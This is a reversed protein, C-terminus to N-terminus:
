EQLLTAPEDDAPPDVLKGAVIIVNDIVDRVAFLFPHDAVLARDATLTSSRELNTATLFNESSSGEDVRFSVQQKLEDIHLRQEISIGSFDASKTFINTLGAKSLSKEAGSVADFNFKPFSIDVTEEKLQAVISSFTAPNIESLLKSLGDQQTPLVILLAYRNNKFFHM